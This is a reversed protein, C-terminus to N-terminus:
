VVEARTLATALRRRLEFMSMSRVTRDATAFTQWRVEAQPFVSSPDDEPHFVLFWRTHHRPSNEQRATAIWARGTEDAFSRM